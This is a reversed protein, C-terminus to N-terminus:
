TLAISNTYVEKFCAFHLLRCARDADEQEITKSLRCRAFATSLRILTELTRATIPMTKLNNNIAMIREM